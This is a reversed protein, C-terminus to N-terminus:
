TVPSEDVPTPMSIVVPEPAVVNGRADAVGATLSQTASVLVSAGEPWAIADVFAQGEAVTDATFTASITFQVPDAM